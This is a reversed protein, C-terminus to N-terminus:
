LGKIEYKPEELISSALLFKLRKFNLRAHPPSSICVSTVGERHVSSLAITLAFVGAISSAVMSRLCLMRVNALHAKLPKSSRFRIWKVDIDAVNNDFSPQAKCQSIQVGFM